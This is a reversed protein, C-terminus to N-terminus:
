MDLASFDILSLFSFLLFFFVYFYSSKHYINEYDNLDFLLIKERQLTRSKFRRIQKLSSYFM